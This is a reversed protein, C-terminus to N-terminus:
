LKVTITQLDANDSSNGVMLEYQGPVVRMTNSESDWTEFRERPMAISVTQQQGAKLSMRQFARLSKQPGGVDATRRLYVQIIEDGDRSGTNKVNVVVQGRKYVPKSMTFTTYSLGFGFPFLPSGEFYRYTRGRMSYDEYDPLQETNRYFTVPLKGSPNYDGFLVDALAQPGSEGGYWAQVIADANVTEPEMAVASGSCNVFVVPKGARHLAAVIDRQAQPLEISTRDGGKFGKENVRMEEGELRPSLGGIFIVVDANGVADVIISLDAMSRTHTCAQMWCTNPAKQRIGDLLSRRESPFGNYNGWLMEVDDANPGIVAIRQNRDLPLTNNRNQLLVIGQRAMQLALQKHEASAVTAATLNRWPVLEDSDFDGLEFRARLLRRLSVDIDAESIKGQRVAEPLSAYDGGCEVDTGSHVAQAVATERSDSYGHYGPKWFDSVAGCDSTVIGKFGWEQRLIQQLLQSNGCCPKGDYRQYACMIEKVGAETVLAKFAPLYTEWLDRPDLDEVNFSHRNWEPGSHVAFHKACAYLKYYPTDAKGKVPSGPVTGQLGHVVACGMQATLFPDEGYTEQGRGWRPDRFININPTWFSLGEYIRCRNNRRAENNKARAEDSVADFVQYLLQPNFSAAMGLTIPFVTAVGNRAVGHLAESWWNFQPIGLREIAPSANMMLSAKEEISLRGLLDDARQDFSLTPDQFPYNQQADAHQVFALCVLLSVLTIKLNKM